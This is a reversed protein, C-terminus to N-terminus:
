EKEPLYQRLKKDLDPRARVISQIKGNADIFCHESHGVCRVESTVKDRVEYEIYLRVGTYNTFKLHLVVTDYFKAMTKFRAEVATVPSIIGAEEMEKYGMGIRDFVSIRAEEFWRIYNSHHVVGMQDTEYYQVLHEYEPLETMKKEQRRM